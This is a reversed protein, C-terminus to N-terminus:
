RLGQKGGGGAFLATSLRTKRTKKVAREDDAQAAQDQEQLNM